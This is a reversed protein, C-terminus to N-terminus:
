EIENVRKLRIGHDKLHINFAKTYRRYYEEDNMGYQLIAQLDSLALDLQIPLQTKEIHIAIFPIDKTIAYTIEKRVFKSSVSNESIFVIFLSAGFLARGIEALWENGPAIGEDYWINLGQRNFRDIENFVFEYDKHSYSVFAYADEGEYAPFPIEDVHPITEDNKFAFGDDDESFAALFEDIEDKKSSEIGFENFASICRFLYDDDDMSYKELSTESSLILKLRSSLETEELLINLIPIAKDSALSIENIVDSSEVSNKSTFAIFASSNLLAEAIEDLWEGGPTFGEDYWINYGMSQFREIEALVEKSDRHSYGVFIYPEDGQYARLPAKPTDDQPKETEVVDVSVTMSECREYLDNEEFIAKFELTEIDTAPILLSFKGANSTVVTDVLDDGKYIDINSRSLADEGLKLSGSLAIVNGCVVTNSIASLMLDPKQKSPSEDSESVSVPTGLIAAAAQIVSEYGANLDGEADVWQISRLYFEFEGEPLSNLRFSLITKENSFALKLEEKAYRSEQYYQSFVPIFISAGNLGDAIEKAFNRSSKLDRPAIWCKFGHNELKECLEKATDTDRSSYSIFIDHTTGTKAKSTLPKSTPTTVAKSAERVADALAYDLDHTGDIWTANRLFFECQDEPFSEDARLSVIPTKASFATELEKNTFQSAQFNKTFVAFFLRADKVASVIQEAYNKGPEINRPAIWCKIGNDELTACVRNAIDADKTSYAIYVDHSVGSKFKEPITINKVPKELSKLCSKVLSQLHSTYNPHAEVCPVGNLFFEMSGEVPEAYTKFLCLPVSESFATDVENLVFNSNRSNESYIVVCLQSDRIAEIIENINNNFSDRSKMWCSLGNYELVECVDGAIGEDKNDYSIYVTENKKFIKNMLGM